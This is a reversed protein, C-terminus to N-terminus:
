GCVQAFVRLANEGLIGIIQEDDYGRSVLGRTVNPLDRYDDFGALRASLDLRDQDRFGIESAQKGLTANLLAIPAQLPWDTGLAVHQWGVLEAVYDIHDLMHALSPARSDTLFAPAAVIGIVGGTDAIARCEEDSKGRAHNFLAKSATHNATVPAKSHRCADLTTLTGCHSTDLLLGLANCHAVVEVGFNSLGADVRETCGVGINDMRNYTLMFSRLGKAYARDIATLDRPMPSVPQWQAYLAVSDEAKARRIDAATTARRIWPLHDFVRNAIDLKLSLPDHGDHVGIGYTGCTLGSQRYWERILDSKGIRALEYPWYEAETLKAWDSPNAAVRADLDELLEPPYAAFLNSGGVHQNVFDFIIARHHLRTAREEQALSLNFSYYPPGKGAPAAGVENPATM